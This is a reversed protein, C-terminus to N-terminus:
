YAYDQIAFPSEEESLPPTAFGPERATKVMALLHQLDGGLKRRIHAAGKCRAGRYPVKSCHSDNQVDVYFLRHSTTRLRLKVYNGVFEVSM